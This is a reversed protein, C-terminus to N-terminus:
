IILAEFTITISKSPSRGFWDNPRTDTLHEREPGEGQLLDEESPFEDRVRPTKGVLDAFEDRVRPSDRSRALGDRHRELSGSEIYKESLSLCSKMECVPHGGSRILRKM